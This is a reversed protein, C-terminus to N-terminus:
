PKQLVIIGDRKLVDLDPYIVKWGAKEALNTMGAISNRPWWIENDPKDKFVIPVRGKEWGFKELKDWAGYQHSAIAGSKMKPLANKLINFISESNNHCLVGFSWFFDFYNDPLENFNNDSIQLFKLRNKYVVPKLWSAANQFDVATLEGFPIKNFLARTWTGKGCGIELVKSNPRLYSSAGKKFVKRYSGGAAIEENKRIKDPFFSLIDGSEYGYYFEKKLWDLTPM